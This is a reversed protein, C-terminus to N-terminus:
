EDKINLLKEMANKFDEFSIFNSKLNQSYNNDWYKYLKQRFEEKTYLSGNIEITKM